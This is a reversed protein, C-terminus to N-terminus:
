LTGFGVRRTDDESIELYALRDVPVAVRGGREDQLVFVGDDVALAENLAREVEDASLTTEVVLEKPVSQVGIRVQM